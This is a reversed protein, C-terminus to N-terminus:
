QDYKQVSKIIHGSFCDILYSEKQYETDKQIGKACIQYVVNAFVILAIPGIMSM